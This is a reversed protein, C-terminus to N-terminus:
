TVWSQCRTLGLNKFKATLVVVSNYRFLFHKIVIIPIKVVLYRCIDVKVTKLFKSDVTYINKNPELVGQIMFVTIVYRLKEILCQETEEKFLQYFIFWCSLSALTIMCRTKLPVSENELISDRHGQSFSQYSKTRTAIYKIIGTKRHNM